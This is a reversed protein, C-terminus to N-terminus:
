SLTRELRWREEEYAREDAPPRPTDGTRGDGWWKKVAARLVAAALPTLVASPVRRKVRTYSALDSLADVAQASIDRAGDALIQAAREGPLRRRSRRWRWLGLLAAGSGAAVLAGRHRTAFRRWDLTEHVREQLRDLSRDLAQREADILRRLAQEQPPEAREVATTVDAVEAM